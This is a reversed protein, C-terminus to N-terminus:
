KIIANNIPNYHTPPELKILNQEIFYKAMPSYDWYYDEKRPRGIGKYLKYDIDTSREYPAFWIGQYEADTNNTTIAKKLSKIAEKINKDTLAIGNM